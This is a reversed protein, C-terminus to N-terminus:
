YNNKVSLMNLSMPCLPKYQTTVIAYARTPKFKNIGIPKQRKIIFSSKNSFSKEFCNISKRAKLGSKTKFHTSNSKLSETLSNHACVPTRRKASHSRNATIKNEEYDNNSNEINEKLIFSPQDMASIKNKKVLDKLNPKFITANKEINERFIKQTGLTDTLKKCKVNSSFEYSISLEATIEDELFKELSNSKNGLSLPSDM